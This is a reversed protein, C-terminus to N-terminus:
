SPSRPRGSESITIVRPPEPVAAPPPAPLARLPDEAEPAHADKGVNALVVAIYPLFIAGIGLAFTWWGYPTIVVMLIFCGVRIGMTLLYKRMRSSEDDQPSQPLSTTSQPTRSSRV